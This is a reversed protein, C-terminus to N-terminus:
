QLLFPTFLWTGPPMGPTNGSIPCRFVDLNYLHDWGHNRGLKRSEPPPPGAPDGKLWLEVSYHYFQKSWLLGAFAQRQINSQDAALEPKQISQYFQDAEWIRKSFVPAFDDFPSDNKRNTFRVQVTFTEGPPIIRKFHAAAKTGRMGPNVKELQGQVIADNIGDKVYPTANPTGFLRESNTENETFLLASAQNALNQADEDAYWWREGLHRHDTYITRDDLARLVPKDRTYGWSWTNRFWIHPLVHIPAPEPGRNIVSIRCFIDEQDAKAYEILIDFYRNDAFEDSLADILEYEPLWRDRNQNEEILQQYPYAVQPYRYLMKAYSHTPTSDLYYYIEKVDEGHNGQTGTLGFLREKLFPDHENWLAVSLCINQFRNCFGGLGDENWRYTRSRAHDHPFSEWAEGDPSYDERITGWARESLYPGWNKWDAKRTESDILRLHEATQFQKM